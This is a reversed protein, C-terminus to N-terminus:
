KIGYGTHQRVYEPHFALVIDHSPVGAAVLECTIGDEIGDRQIWIKGNIIEVHVIVGHIRQKGLWGANMLLFNNREPDIILKSEIEGYGYPIRHHVSLINQIIDRYSDLKDM